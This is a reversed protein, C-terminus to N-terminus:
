RAHRVWLRRDPPGVEQRSRRALGREIVTLLSVRRLTRPWRGPRAGREGRKAHTEYSLWRHEHQRRLPDRQTRHARRGAQSRDLVVGRLLANVAEPAEMNVMHGVGPVTVKRANGIRNALVDSMERFCPVDLEGIVVTTPAAITALLEISNPHPAHPDPSTWNVGSHDGVM